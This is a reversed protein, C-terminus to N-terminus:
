KGKNRRSLLKAVFKKAASPPDKDNMVSRPLVAEGPSLLAHVIDNKPHDGKVPAKGPVMGPKVVTNNAVYGGTNATPVAAPKNKIYEAAIGGGASAVNGAMGALQQNQATLAALQAQDRALQDQNQAATAGLMQGQNGLTFQGYNTIAGGLQSAQQNAMQGAAQM